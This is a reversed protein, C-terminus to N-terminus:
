GLKVIMIEALELLSILYLQIRYTMEEGGYSLAEHVVICRFINQYISFSFFVLKAM